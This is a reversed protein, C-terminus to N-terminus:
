FRFLYKKLDIKRKKIEIGDKKLLGIKKRIGRSYGGLSGDSKVVKFCPYKKPYRNKRLLIGATRQHIGLKNALIKYTTIKGKPIKKLLRQLKRELDEVALVGRYGCYRCEWIQGLWPLYNLEKKCKPCLM